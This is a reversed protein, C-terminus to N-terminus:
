DDNLEVKSYHKNALSAAEETILNNAYADNANLWIVPSNINDLLIGNIRDIGKNRIEEKTFSFKKYTVLWTKM